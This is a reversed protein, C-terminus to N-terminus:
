SYRTSQAPRTPRNLSPVLSPLSSPSRSILTHHCSWLSSITLPTLIAPSRHQTAHQTTSVRDTHRVTHLSLIVDHTLSASGSRKLNTCHVSVLVEPPSAEEDTASREPVYSSTPLPLITKEFAGFVSSGLGVLWKTLTSSPFATTRNRIMYGVTVTQDCHWM